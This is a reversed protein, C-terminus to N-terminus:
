DAEGRYVEEKFEDPIHEYLFVDDGNCDGDNTWSVFSAGLYYSDDQLLDMLGDFDLTQTIQNYQDAKIEAGSQIYKNLLSLGFHGFEERMYDRLKKGMDVKAICLYSSSSSNTVYDARVKM